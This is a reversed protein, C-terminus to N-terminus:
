GNSRRKERLQAALKALIVREAEVVAARTSEYIKEQRGNMIRNLCRPHRGCLSAILSLTVGKSVLDRLLVAVGVASVRWNNNKRKNVSTVYDANARTCKACRCGRNYTGRKGHTKM